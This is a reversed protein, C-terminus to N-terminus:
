LLASCIMEKIEEASGGGSWLIRDFGMEQLKHIKELKDADWTWINAAGVLLDIGEALNPNRRIKEDFDM